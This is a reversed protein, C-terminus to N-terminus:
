AEASIRIHIKPQRVRETVRAVPHVDHVTDIRIVRQMGAVRGDCEGLMGVHDSVLKAASIARERREDRVLCAPEAELM